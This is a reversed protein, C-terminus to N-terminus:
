PKGIKKGVTLLQQKGRGLCGKRTGVTLIVTSITSALVSISVYLYDWVHADRM